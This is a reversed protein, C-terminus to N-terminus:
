SRIDHDVHGLGVTGHSLLDRRTLHPELVYVVDGLVKDLDQHEIIVVDQVLDRPLFTLKLPQRLSSADQNDDWFCQAISITLLGIPMERFRAIFKTEFSLLLANPRFVAETWKCYPATLCGAVFGETWAL